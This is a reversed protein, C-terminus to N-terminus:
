TEVKVYSNQIKVKGRVCFEKAACRDFLPCCGTAKDRYTCGYKSLHWLPEDVDLAVLPRSKAALGEVSDFWAKRIFEFLSELGCEFSGKVVGTALTARAVHIDVPIPVKDLNRLVSIGANDRLMRIWLPGIKPGRLYPYDSVMRGNYLHTDNRLRDLARPADFGCDQLFKKPDGNWKKYFTVGVTRWIHADRRPKKSLKYKQMVERLRRPPTEHLAQPDFLFRTERDEFTRRSSEWL